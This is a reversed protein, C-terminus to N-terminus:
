KIKCDNWSMSLIDTCAGCCHIYVHSKFCLSCKSYFIPKKESGVVTEQLFCSQQWKRFYKWKKSVPLYLWVFLDMLRSQLRM